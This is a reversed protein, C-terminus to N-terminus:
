LPDAENATVTGLDDDYTWDAPISSGNDRLPNQPARKLYGQDILVGFGDGLTPETPVAQMEAATPYRNNRFFFLELQQEVVREQTEVSASRADGSAASFQPVVIAALIGLIVIVILLEILTFGGGRAARLGM